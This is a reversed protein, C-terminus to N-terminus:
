ETPPALAIDFATDIQEVTTIDNTAIQGMIEAEASFCTSIHNLVANSIAIIASANLQIFEGGAAKWQTTFNPDADAAVRAGLVKTQSQADTAITAGAFSLGGTEIEWRRKATYDHLDIVVPVAPLVDNPDIADWVRKGFDTEDAASASYPLWGYEPHNVECDVMGDRSHTANRYEVPLLEEPIIPTFPPEVYAPPFTLEEPPTEIPEEPM